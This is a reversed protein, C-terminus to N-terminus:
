KKNETLEKGLTIISNLTEKETSYHIDKEACKVWPSTEFNSPIILVSETKDSFTLGLKVEMTAKSFGSLLDVSTTNEAINKAPLTRMTQLLNEVRASDANVNVEVSGQRAVKWENGIKKLETSITDGPILKIENVNSANFDMCVKPEFDKFKKILETKVAKDILLREAKYSTKLFAQNNQSPYDRGIAIMTSVESTGAGSFKLLIEAGSDSLSAENYEGSNEDIFKQAKISTIKALMNNIVEGDCRSNKPESMYWTDINKVFKYKENKAPYSVEFNTISSPSFQAAKKDRYDFLSKSVSSLQKSDVLKIDKSNNVRAYCLTGEPNKKGYNIVLENTDAKLVLRVSKTGLGFEEGNGAESESISSDIKALRVDNIIENVIEQDALTNVPKQMKWEAGAPKTFEIAFTDSDRKIQFNSIKDFAFNAFNEKKDEPNEIPAKDLTYAYYGLLALVVLSFFTKLYNM